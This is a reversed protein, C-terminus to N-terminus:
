SCCPMQSIGDKAFVSNGCLILLVGAFFGQLLKKMFMRGKKQQRGM